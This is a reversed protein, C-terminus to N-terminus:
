GDPRLVHQVDDEPLGFDGAVRAGRDSQRGAGSGHQVQDFGQAEVHVVRLQASRAEVVVVERVDHHMLAQVVGEGLNRSAHPRQRPM